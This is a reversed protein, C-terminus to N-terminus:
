PTRRPDRYLAHDDIYAAVADPCSTACRDVPPPERRAPGLGLAALRPGDLLRGSPGRTRPLRPRDGRADRGPLRRTARRRRDGAGPRPAARAVDRVDAFAEASVIFVLDARLSPRSDPASAPRALTDVTYSPGDRDLEIRSAAFAPNGAIALEVMALRDSAPTVAPGHKHPPSAPRSSCSASSASRRAPRRPSRSTPSTSPISRGASSASAGAVPRGALGAADTM